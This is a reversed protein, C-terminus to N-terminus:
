ISTTVEIAKFYRRFLSKTMEPQIELFYIFDKDKMLVDRVYTNYYMMSEHWNPNNFGIIKPETRYEGLHVGHMPRFLPKNYNNFNLHEKKGDLIQSALIDVDYNENKLMYYLFTENDHPFSVLKIYSGDYIMQRYCDLKHKTFRSFYEKCDIFHVGSLRYIDRRIRMLLSPIYRICYFKNSRIYQFVAILRTKLSMHELTNIRRMNDFPLHTVNKMHCKHQEHLPFPEPLYLTDIDIVYLYDYNEFLDNWLVWRLAMSKFADMRPCDAYANERIIVKDELNLVKLIRRLESALKGHLFLIVDYNPYFKKISYIAIPVYIQYKDGWIYTTVCVKDTM